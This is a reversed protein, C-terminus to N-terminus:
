GEKGENTNRPRQNSELAKQLYIKASEIKTIAAVTFKRFSIKDLESNASKIAERLRQNTAEKEQKIAVASEVINRLTCQLDTSLGDWEEKANDTALQESIYQVWEGYTDWPCGQEGCDPYDGKEWPMKLFSKLRQNEAELQKIKCLPCETLLETSEHECNFFRDEFEGM